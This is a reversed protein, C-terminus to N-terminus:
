LRGDGGWVGVKPFGYGGAAAAAYKWIQAIILFTGGSGSAL